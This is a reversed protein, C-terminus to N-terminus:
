VQFISYKIYFYLSCYSEVRLLSNCWQKPWVGVPPGTTFILPSYWCHIYCVIQEMLTSFKEHAYISCFVLINFPRYFRSTMCTSVTYDIELGLSCLPCAGRDIDVVKTSPSIPLPRGEIQLWLCGGVSDISSWNFASNVVVVSFKM